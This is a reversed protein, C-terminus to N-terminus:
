NLQLFGKDVGDKFFEKTEVLYKQCLEIVDESGRWDQFFYKYSTEPPVTQARQRPREESEGRGVVKGNPNRIEIYVAGSVNLTEVIKITVNKKLKVPKVHINLNRKNRFFKATPHLSVQSDYWNQGGKKGKVEEFAYQFVSRTATLFASLNFGFADPNNKEDIMRSLFYEGEIIKAQEHMSMKGGSYTAIGQQAYAFVWGRM